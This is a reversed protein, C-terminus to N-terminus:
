LDNITFKYNVLYELFHNLHDCLVKNIKTLLTALQELEM